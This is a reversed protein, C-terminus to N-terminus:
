EVVLKVSQNGVKILYIGSVLNETIITTESVLKQSYVASGQANFIILNSGIKANNIKFAETTPNPYITLTNLSETQTTNIGTLSCNKVNIGSDKSYSCNDSNTLINTVNFLGIGAISPIFYDNTIGLVTSNSGIFLPQADLCVEIVPFDPTINFESLTTVTLLATNSCNNGDIGIVTYVNIGALTGSITLIDGLFSNQNWNYSNAGSATIMSQTNFCIKPASLNFTINPLPNISLSFTNSIEIGCTGTATVIYSGAISTTIRAITEGTNWLYTINTGTTSIEFTAINGGCLTQSISQSIINTGLLSSLIAKNSIEIGCGGTVTVMYEGLATTSICANTEGNSWLYTLNSGTASVEFIGINGGCLSQSTLHSVITTPFSIPTFSTGSASCAISSQNRIYPIYTTASLSNIINSSSWNSNDISYELTGTGGSGTITVSGNPSTCNTVDSY